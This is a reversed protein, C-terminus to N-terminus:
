QSAPSSILVMTLFHAPDDTSCCQVVNDPIVYSLIRSPNQTPRRRLSNYHGYFDGTTPQLMVPIAATDSSQSLGVSPLQLYYGIPLGSIHPASEPAQNLHVPTAQANYLVVTQSSDPDNSAIFV